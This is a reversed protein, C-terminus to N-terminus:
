CAREIARGRECTAAELRFDCEVASLEYAEISVNNRQVEVAAKGSRTHGLLPKSRGAGREGM